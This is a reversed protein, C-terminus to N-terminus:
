VSGQKGNFLASLQQVMIFILILCNVLHIFSLLVGKGAKFKSIDPWMVFAYKM